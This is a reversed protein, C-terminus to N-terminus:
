PQEKDSSSSSTGTVWKLWSGRPKSEKVSAPPSSVQPPPAISSRSSKDEQVSESGRRLWSWYGGSSNHSEETAKAQGAKKSHIVIKKPITKSDMAVEAEHAEEARRMRDDFQAKQAEPGELVGLASPPM